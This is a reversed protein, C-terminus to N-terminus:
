SLSSASGAVSSSLTARNSGVDIRGRTMEWLVESGASCLRGGTGGAAGTASEVTSCKSSSVSSTSSVPM